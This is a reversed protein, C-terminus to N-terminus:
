QPRDGEPHRLPGVNQSSCKASTASTSGCDPCCLFHDAETADERDVRQGIIEGRRLPRRERVAASGSSGFEAAAMAITMEM